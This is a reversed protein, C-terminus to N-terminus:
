LVEGQLQDVLPAAPEPGPGTSPETTGARPGAREPGLEPGPTAALQVRWGAATREATIKGAAIRKRVAREHIGLLVAAAPVSYWAPGAGNRAQHRDQAPGTGNLM